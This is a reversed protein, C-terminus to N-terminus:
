IFYHLFPIMQPMLTCQICLLSTNNERTDVDFLALLFNSILTSKCFPARFNLSFCSLSHTLKMWNVNEDMTTM